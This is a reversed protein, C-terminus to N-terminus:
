KFNPSYRPVNGGREQISCFACYNGADICKELSHGKLYYAIFGGAFSDGASNTDVIKFKDINIAPREIPEKGTECCITSNPGRTTLIIKKIMSNSYNAIKKTIEQHTKKDNFSILNLEKAFCEMESENGFVITSVKFIEKLTPWCPSKIASVSSLSIAITKKLRLCELAVSLAIKESSRIFFTSILVLNSNRVTNLVNPSDWYNFSMKGSAGLSTVITRNNNHILIVSCGTVDNPIIQYHCKVGYKSLTRKLKKKNEDDGVSGIIATEIKNLSMWRCKVLANQSGGGVTILANKNKIAEEVLSQLKSNALCADGSKLKWKELYSKEVDITIDILPNCFAVFM